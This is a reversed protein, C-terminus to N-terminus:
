SEVSIQNCSSLIASGIRELSLQKQAGGIEMAVKPMGYVVCSGEDQAITMAGAQRMALLGKAGDRGMGTLIAGVAKGGVVKAVSHFLVDVSPRHGNVPDGNILKCRLGGGGAVELHMAGGPAVYVRGTDLPAGDYAEEVTAANSRNLREAFSRTFTGPMHQTIVTPPCNAPFRSIVALLAEVGGTSAGIAVLRGNTRFGTDTPPPVPRPPANRGANSALPRLRAGAAAKVREPLGSFASIADGVGGAVPKGVCDVAGFELATLTADAGAQTLTSIMIVPTPRLRMIKELFDLGNMNPMEVDLTIVDPNLAKIAERAELPDGAQGVVDIDPDKRLAAAILSRMTASDDVILVRIKTM